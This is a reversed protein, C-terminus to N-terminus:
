GLISASVLAVPRDAEKHQLQRECRRRWIAERIISTVAVLCWHVINGAQGAERPRLSEQRMKGKPFSVIGDGEMIWGSVDDAHSLPNEYIVERETLQDLKLFSDSNM